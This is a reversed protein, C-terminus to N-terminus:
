TMNTPIIIQTITTNTRDADKFKDFIIDLIKFAYDGLNFFEGSFISISTKFNNEVYWDMFINVNNVITDMNRLHKPYLGEKQNQLYCYTCKLDCDATIFLEIGGTKRINDSRFQKFFRRELFGKLIEKNEQEFKNM